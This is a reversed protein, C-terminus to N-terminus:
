IPSSHGLSPRPGKLTVWLWPVPWGGAGVRLGEAPPGHGERQWLGMGWPWSAAGWAPHILNRALQPTPATPDPAPTPPTPSSLLPLHSPWARSTRVFLHIVWGAGLRGARQGSVVSIKLRQATQVHPGAATTLGRRPSPVPPWTRPGSQAQLERRDTHQARHRPARLAELGPNQPDRWESGQPCAWLM